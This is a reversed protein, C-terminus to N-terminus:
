CSSINWATSAVRQRINGHLSCAFVIICLYFLCPLKLAPEINVKSFQPLTLGAVAFRAVYPFVRLINSSLNRVSFLNSDMHIVVDFDCVFIHALLM